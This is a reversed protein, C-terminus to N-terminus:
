NFKNKMRLQILALRAIRQGPSHEEGSQPFDPSAAKLLLAVTETAQVEDRRGDHASIRHTQLPGDVCQTITMCRGHVIRQQLEQRGQAPLLEVQRM